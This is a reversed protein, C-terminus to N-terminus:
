PQTLSSEVAIGHRLLVRETLETLDEFTGSEHNPSQSEEFELSSPAQDQITEFV